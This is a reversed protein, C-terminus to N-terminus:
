RTTAPRIRASLLTTDTAMMVLIQEAINQFARLGAENDLAPEVVFDFGIRKFRYCCDGELLQAIFPTM